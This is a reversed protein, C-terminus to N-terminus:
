PHYVSTFAQLIDLKQCFDPFIGETFHKGNDFIILQPMGFRCIIHERLFKEVHKGMIYALPKAEVRKTFYDIAVILFRAGGPAIPRLGVIDIGWQSFPWASTISTMEQKPKRSISSHIQCAECRQILTKADNHMLPWYYGLKMIKSVVSRPRAHMKLYLDNYIMMYQPAKIRLKRGKQSDNPLKGFLLYERIPAM